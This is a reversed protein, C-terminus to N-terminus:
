ISLVNIVGAVIANGRLKWLITTMSTATRVTRCRSATANKNNTREEANDRTGNSVSLVSVLLLFFLLLLRSIHGCDETILPRIYSKNRSCDACHELKRYLSLISWDSGYLSLPARRYELRDNITCRFCSINAVPPRKGRNFWPAFPEFSFM